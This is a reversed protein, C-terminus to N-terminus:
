LENFIKRIELRRRRVLQKKNLPLKFPFNKERTVEQYTDVVLATAWSELSKNRKYKFQPHNCFKAALKSARSEIENMQQQDSISLEGTKKQIFEQFLDIRQKLQTIRKKRKSELSIPQINKAAELDGVKKRITGPSFGLQRSIETISVAPYNEVLFALDNPTWAKRLYLQLQERKRVVVQWPKNLQKAIKKDSMSSYHEKLFSIEDATWYRKVKPFKRRDVKLPEAKQPLKLQQAKSKIASGSRDLAKELDKYTMKSYNETLFILQDETWMRRGKRLQLEKAKSEIAILSRNLQRALGEYSMTTFKEQLFQIEEEIWKRGRRILGYRTAAEKVTNPSRKLSKALEENTKSHYHNRLFTIEADSWEKM